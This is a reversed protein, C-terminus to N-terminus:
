RGYSGGARSSALTRTLNTQQIIEEADAWNPILSMVFGRLRAQHATFLQTFEDVRTEVAM